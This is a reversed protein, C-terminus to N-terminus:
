YKTIPIIGPVGKYKIKTSKQYKKIANVTSEKINSRITKSASRRFGFGVHYSLRSILSTSVKLEQQIEQYSCGDNLMEIIKLRRAMDNIERPTLISEFLMEIEQTNKTEAILCLLKKIEKEFWLDKAM